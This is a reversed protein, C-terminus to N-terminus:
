LVVVLRDNTWKRIQRGKCSKREPQLLVLYKERIDNKFHGQESIGGNEYYFKWYGKKKGNMLWGESKLRGSEYYVKTYSKETKPIGTLVVLLFITGFLKM